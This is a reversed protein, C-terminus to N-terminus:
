HRVYGTPLLLPNPTTMRKPNRIKRALDELQSAVRSWTLDIRFCTALQRAGGAAQTLGEILRDRAARFPLPEGRMEPTPNARIADDIGAHQICM